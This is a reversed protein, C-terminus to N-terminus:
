ALYHINKAKGFMHDRNCASLQTVFSSVFVFLHAQTGLVSYRLFECSAQPDCNALEWGLDLTLHAMQKM